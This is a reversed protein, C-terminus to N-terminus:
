GSGRPDSSGCACKRCGFVLDGERREARCLCMKPLILLPLFALDPFLTYFISDSPQVSGMPDTVPPCEGDLQLLAGPQAPQARFSSPSMDGLGPLHHLRAPFSEQDSYSPLVVVPRPQLANPSSALRAM